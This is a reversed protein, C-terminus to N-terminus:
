DGTTAALPVPLAESPGFGKILEMMARVPGALFRGRRTAVTVDLRPNFGKLPRYALTGRDSDAGVTAWPLVTVGLGSEVARRISEVATFEMVVKPSEGTSICASEVTQRYACGSEYLVLPHRVLDQITM